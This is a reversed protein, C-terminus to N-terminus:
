GNAISSDREVAIIDLVRQSDSAVGADMDMEQGIVLLVESETAVEVDELIGTILDLTTLNDQGVSTINVEYFIHFEDLFEGLQRRAFPHQSDIIHHYFQHKEVEDLFADGDTSRSQRVILKRFNGIFHKFAALFGDHVRIGFQLASVEPLLFSLDFQRGALRLHVIEQFTDLGHAAEAPYQGSQLNEGLIEDLGTLM